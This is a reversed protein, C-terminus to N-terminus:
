EDDVELIKLKFNKESISDYHILEVLDALLLCTFKGSVEFFDKEYWTATKTQIIKKFVHGIDCQWWIVVDKNKYDSAIILDKIEAKTM